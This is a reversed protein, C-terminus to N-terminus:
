RGEMKAALANLIEHAAEYKSMVPLEKTEEKTMLTLVNTDTMFGARPDLLTNACIMDLNKKELKKKANELLQETEMAFGCLLQGKPKNAGLYALIDDTRDLSLQLDEQGDKKKMKQKAVVAPRYDAVAAAKIIIDQKAARDTVAAFMEKPSEIFVTNCFRPPRLATPGSVLTVEAGRDSAAKAIAYGMKGSSKNSLFRVPDLAERTPGATVLIKKGALDHERAAFHEIAELIEEPEPLRGKGTIGCALIGEGPTLMHVGRKRLTEINEQTAPHEFMHTNMAPAVLTTCTCALATTSLMDDAIGHALKAITNASAPAVVFIDAWAASAIHGIPETHSRDFTDVATRNGSLSDFVLPSILKTANQTMVVRVEAGAHVLASCLAAAKYAAIGGSVGLLVHKGKLM